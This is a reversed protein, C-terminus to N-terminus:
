MPSITSKIEDCEEESLGCQAFLQADLEAVPRSWDISAKDSFDQLPVFVFRERTIHISSLAQLLLYRTFATSLYACLAEAESRQAFCGITLYSDTCVEGPELVKLSSIVKFTGNKNPKGAHESMVAACLVKYATTSPNAVLENTPTLYSTTMRSAYLKLDGPLPAEHGRTDTSLNFPNRTSVLSSLSQHKPGLAKHLISCATNSSVFIGYQAFEDLPRTM